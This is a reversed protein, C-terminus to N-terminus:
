AHWANVCGGVSACYYAVGLSTASKKLQERILRDFTADAVTRSCYCYRIDHSEQTLVVFTFMENEM